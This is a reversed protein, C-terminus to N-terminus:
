FTQGGCPRSALERMYQAAQEPQEPAPAWPAWVTPSDSFCVNRTELYFAPGDLAQTTHWCPAPVRLFWTERARMDLIREVRGGDDFIPVRLCGQLLLYTKLEGAELRLPRLYSDSLLCILMQQTSEQPDRHLCLRARRLPAGEATHQLRELDLDGLCVPDQPFYLATANAGSAM